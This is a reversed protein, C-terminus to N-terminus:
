EMRRPIRPAMLHVIRLLHIIAADRPGNRIQVVAPVDRVLIGRQSISQLREIFCQRHEVHLSIRVIQMRRRTADARRDCIGSGSERDSRLGKAPWDSAIRAPLFSNMAEQLPQWPAFASPPRPGLRVSPRWIRRIRSPARNAEILDPTGPVSM